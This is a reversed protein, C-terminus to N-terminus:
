TYQKGHIIALKRMQPSPEPTTITLLPLEYGWMSSRHIFIEQWAQQCAELTWAGVPRAWAKSAYCSDANFWPVLHM